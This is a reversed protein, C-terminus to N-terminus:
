NRVKVTSPNAIQNSAWSMELWVEAAFIRLNLNRKVFNPFDKSTSCKLGDFFCSASVPVVVKFNFNSGNKRDWWRIDFFLVINGLFRIKLFGFGAIINLHM